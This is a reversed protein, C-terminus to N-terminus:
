TRLEKNLRLSILCRIDRINFSLLRKCDKPTYLYPPLYVNALNMAGSVEDPPSPNDAPAGKKITIVGDKSLYIRDVRPLYYNYDLSISEDSAIVDKSSHQGGNFNRGYFELPSRDGAGGSTNRYGLDPM